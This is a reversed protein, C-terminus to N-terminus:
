TSIAGPLEDLLERALYGVPAVKQALRDGAANHATLGWLAAADADAGRALLGAIAGALVDGSGSTGLGSNGKRVQWCEGGPSAVTANLVVLVDFREAITVAQEHDPADTQEDDLLWQAEESNPTIVIRQPVAARGGNDHLVGCTIALADLVVATQPDIGALVGQAFARTAEPGQMGPGLLVARSGHSAEIAADVAKADVAGGVTEPLPIVAAEPVATALARATSETTAMTLRGAGVRLAALGALLVAGPTPVAGGLITVSGRDHKSDAQDPDPLPWRSRLMAGDVTLPETM